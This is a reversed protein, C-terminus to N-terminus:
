KEAFVLLQEEGIHGFQLSWFISLKVSTFGAKRLDNLLDWGFHHYCLIGGNPDVPDGHYEPTLIHEIRGEGSIRARLINEKSHIVFPVSLVLHGGCRLVRYLECLAAFYNPVHELVDFSLCYDFSSDHMSLCTVDEHRIGQPTRQGPRFSPGLYESATLTPLQRALYGALPTIQETIFVDPASTVPMREFVQIALRMRNNLHCTPCVLRERWNVQSGNAYMKDFSFGRLDRCIWCYGPLFAEESEGLLDQLDDEVARRAILRANGKDRSFQYEEYSSFSESWMRFTSFPHSIANTDQLQSLRQAKRHFLM